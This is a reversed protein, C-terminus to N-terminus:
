VEQAPSSRPKTIFLRHLGASLRINLADPLAPVLLDAACGTRDQEIAGADCVQPM